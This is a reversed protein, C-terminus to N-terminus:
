GPRLRCLHTGLLALLLRQGGGSRCVSCLHPLLGAPLRRCDSPRFPLLPLETGPVRSCAVTHRCGGLRSSIMVLVDLDVTHFCGWSILALHLQTQFACVGKGSEEVSGSFPDSLSLLDPLMLSSTDPSKLGEILKETTLPM